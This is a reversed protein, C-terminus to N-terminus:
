ALWMWCLAMDVHRWCSLTFISLKQVKSYKISKPGFILEHLWQHSKAFISYNIIISNVLYFLGQGQLASNRALYFNFSIRLTDHTINIADDGNIHLLHRKTSSPTFYCLLSSGLLPSVSFFNERKLFFVPNITM